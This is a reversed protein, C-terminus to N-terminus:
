KRKEQLVFFTILLSKNIVMIEKEKSCHFYGKRNGMQKLEMLFFNNFSFSISKLHLLQQNM